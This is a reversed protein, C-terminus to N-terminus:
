GKDMPNQSHEKHNFGLSIIDKPCKVVFLVLPPVLSVFTKM